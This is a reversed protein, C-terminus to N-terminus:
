AEMHAAFFRSLGGFLPFFPLVWLSSYLTTPMMELWFIRMSDEYNWLGYQFFYNLYMIILLSALTFLFANVRNGQMLYEVLLGVATGVVLFLIANFGFYTFATVDCLMGGIAGFVGGVLEREHIALCVVAPLLLLPKCGAVVLAGPTVQLVFLVLFVMSYLLYQLILAKTKRNM